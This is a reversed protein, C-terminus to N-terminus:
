RRTLRDFSGSPPNDYGLHKAKPLPDACKDPSIGRKLYFDPNRYVARFESNDVERLNRSKLYERRQTRGDIVTGDVPSKYAEHDKMIFNTHSFPKGEANHFKGRKGDIAGTELDYWYNGASYYRKTM